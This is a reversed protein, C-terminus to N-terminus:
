DLSIPHAAEAILADFRPDGRLEDWSPDLKLEGFSPGGPLKVVAALQKLAADKDGVWALTQAQMNAYFPGEAADRWSPVLEVSRQSARLADEKRGLGAYAWALNSVTAPDDPREAVAAELKTRAKEFALMAKEKDGQARAITGELLDLFERDQPTESSRAAAIESRARAFDRQYFAIKAMATHKNRVDPPAGELFARARAPDGQALVSDAKLSWFPAARTTILSRAKDALKEAESYRRLYLYSQIVETAIFPDHPDLAMAKEGDGLADKWHGLRRETLAALDFFQARDSLSPPAAALAAAAKEYDRVGNYYYQAQALHSQPLDPAIRLAADVAAKAAALRANSPDNGHRYILLNANALLCYALAFNPDRAIVKNLLDVADEHRYEAVAGRAQLYLDYAQVDETPRSEIAAKESASLKGKLQAVIAQALDSQLAFLDDMRRDYQEAWVQSDSRTDILQANVRVRDDLKRVSGELVYAVGLTRGIDRINRPGKRYPAVGTRSIVKLDAVKALSTLIDDQMGDSFYNKEERAGFNDFPLVAISKEPISSTTQTVAVAKKATENPLRGDRRALMVVLALICLVAAVGLMASIAVLKNRRVLSRLRYSKTQPLAQVPEAALYRRIDAALASVSSYRKGPEKHMAFLVIADLEGRLARAEEPDSVVESPRIPTQTCIVQRVEESSPHRQPFRHPAQGTLMEYLLTGLAYIDSATTVTDGVAQEPSACIPTLRQQGTATEELTSDAALLKAIGFDLLKPEGDENVLINGPKLDRHVIRRRHAAEVAACIKLFLELRQRISLHREAVFTTVARGSVYEMVFYPLGSDTTGADFIGAINPHDLSALAEREARFRQVLDGTKGTPKLVKIAVQKEFYGDARAALYVSGMGGHGLARVIIYAGIRQGTQLLRDRGLLGTVTEACEELADEKNRLITEADRLLTEAALLLADDDVCRESVLATRAVPSDAELADAVITKLQQWRAPSMHLLLNNPLSTSDHVFSAGSKNAKLSLRGCGFSPL